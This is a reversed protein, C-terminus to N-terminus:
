DAAAEGVSSARVILEVPLLTAPPTQEPYQLMHRMTELCLAGLGIRDQRITTLPPMVLRALEADDFGVVPIDQPVRLGAREIAQIAGIAMVDSDAFLGDPRGPLALLESMRVCALEPSWDAACELDPVPELGRRTLANHFGFRRQASVLHLPDGGIHAIRRCGLDALHDVALEAGHANESSVFSARRGFMELDLAVCPLEAAVIESLTPNRPSFAVLVIGDLEHRRCLEVYPPPRWSDGAEFTSPDTFHFLDFGATSARERLGYLVEDWFPDQTGERRDIDAAIGIARREDAQGPMFAHAHTRTAHAIERQVDLLRAVQEAGLGAGTLPM